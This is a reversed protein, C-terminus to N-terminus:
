DTAAVARAQLHIKNGPTPATAQAKKSKPLRLHLLRVAKEPALRIGRWQLDCGVAEIFLAISGRYSEVCLLASPVTRTQM